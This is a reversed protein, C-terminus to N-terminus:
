DAGCIRRVARCARELSRGDDLYTAYRRRAEADQVDALVEGALHRRFLSAFEDPDRCLVARRALLSRAEPDFHIQLPDEVIFIPKDTLLAELLSTSAFNFIFGAAQHLTDQMQAGLLLKCNRLPPTQAALWGTLHPMDDNPPLKIRFSLSHFESLIRLMRKQQAFHHPSTGGNFPHHQINTAPNYLVYHYASAEAPRPRRAALRDLIASGVDVVRGEPRLGRHQALERTGPGYSLFWGEARLDTAFLMPSHPIGYGGGEQYLIFPIGAERAAVVVGHGAHGFNSSCSLVCLPRAASLRGKWLRYAHVIESPARTVFRELREQASDFLDLGHFQFRGRWASDACLGRWLGEAQSDIERLANRLPGGRPAPLVGMFPARRTEWGEAALGRLIEPIDHWEALALVFPRPPGKRLPQLACDELRSLIGRLYRPWRRPSFRRLLPNAADSALATPPPMPLALAGAAKAAAPCLRSFASERRFLLDPAVSAKRAPTYYVAEPRLELFAGSLLHAKSALCDVLMKLAYYHLTAPKIDADRLAPISAQMRRDLDVCFADLWSYRDLSARNFEEAPTFEELLRYPIKRLDLASSAKADLSLVLVGRPLSGLRPLDSAQEILVLKSM